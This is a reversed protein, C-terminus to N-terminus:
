HFGSSKSSSTIDNLRNVELEYTKIWEILPLFDGGKCFVFSTAHAKAARQCLAATQDASFIDGDASIQAVIIPLYLGYNQCDRLIDFSTDEKGTVAVVFVAPTCDNSTLVDLADNVTTIFEIKLNYEALQNRLAISDEMQASNSSCFIVTGDVLNKTQSSAQMQFNRLQSITHTADIETRDHAIMEWSIYILTSGPGKTASLSINRKTPYCSSITIPSDNSVFQTLYNILNSSVEGKYKAGNAMFEYSTDNPYGLFIDRGGEIIAAEVMQSVISLVEPCIVKIEESVKNFNYNYMDWVASIEQPLALFIPVGDNNFSNTDIFQPDAIALAFGSPSEIMGQPIAGIRRLHESDIGLKAFAEVPPITLKTLIPLSLHEGVLKLINAQTTSCNNAAYRYYDILLPLRDNGCLTLDHKVLDLERMADLTSKRKVSNKKFLTPIFLNFM